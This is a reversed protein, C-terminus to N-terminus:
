NSNLLPFLAICYRHLSFLPDSPRPSSCFTEEKVCRRSTTIDRCGSSSTFLKSCNGLPSFLLVYKAVYATLPLSVKPSARTFKLRDQLRDTRTKAVFLSIERRIKNTPHRKSTSFARLHSLHRQSALNLADHSVHTKM